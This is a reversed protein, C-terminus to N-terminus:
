QTCTSSTFLKMKSPSLPRWLNALKSETIPRDGIAVHHVEISDSIFGLFFYRQKSVTQARHQRQETVEVGWKVRKGDSAEAETEKNPSTM